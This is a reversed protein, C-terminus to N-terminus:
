ISNECTGAAPVPSALTAILTYGPYQKRATGSFMAVAAEGDDAAVIAHIPKIVDTTGDQRLVGSVIFRAPQRVHWGIHAGREGASAAAAGQLSLASVFFAGTLAKVAAIKLHTSM